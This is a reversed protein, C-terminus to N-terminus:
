RRTTAPHLALSHTGPTSARVLFRRFGPLNAVRLAWDRLLIRRRSSPALWEVMTRGLRQTDAVAPALRQQYADFAATLDDGARELEDSLVRAGTLALSAGQGAFLSVSQCADGVLVVRGSSWRDMEVQVSPDYYLEPRRPCRDLLDPVVWGFDGFADRLTDVPDDPAVPEPAARLFLAAAQQDRLAYGGAMLGPKTSIQYRQSLMDHLEADRVLFAAVHYGLYRLFHEKPGFVLERVRSEVGDAGVLVDAERSTGDTLEVSVHSEQDVVSAVSTGYRVPARVEDRLVRALDGRLLSVVQQAEFGLRLGSTRRGRHDLHDLDTFEYRVERLREALGMDRAVEYGAGFFDILYGSSRFEPARELLEVEWGSRELHWALGLGAIGSGCILAKM